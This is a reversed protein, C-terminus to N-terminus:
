GRASAPFGGDVSNTLVEPLFNLVMLELVNV